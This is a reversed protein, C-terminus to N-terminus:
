YENQPFTVTWLTQDTKNTFFLGTEGEDMFLDVADIRVSYTREPALVETILENVTDVKWFSDSFHVQGKYWADPYSATPFTDPLACYAVETEKKSWVCKDAFTLVGLNTHTESSADYIFLAPRGNVTQSYLINGEPSQNATLGNLQKLVLTHTENEVDLIYASGPLAASPKQVLLIKGERQWKALWGFLSSRWIVKANGGDYDSVKGLLGSPTKVLSFIQKGIPSVEIEQIGDELPLGAQQAEPAQEKIESYVSAITENEGLYRRIIGNGDETWVAEYVKPVTTQLIRKTEGGSLTKEFAHGSARDVFRVFTIASTTTSTTTGTIAIAGAMPLNYLQALTATKREPVEADEGTEFEDTGFIGGFLGGGGFTNEFYGLDESDKALEKQASNIFIVWGILAIILLIIFISVVIYITRKNM